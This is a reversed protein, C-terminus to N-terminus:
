GKQGSLAISQIIHRQLILFLILVPLVGLTAGAMVVGYETVYDVNILTAIAVQVTMKTASTLMILPWLFSNWTMLFILVSLAACAEKVVPFIIRRLINFESAGEIRAAQILDDPINMCYQRMFFIGFINVYFPFIVGFLTDDLGIRVMGIYLPIIKIFPPVMYSSLLLIFVINAGKSRYKSLAYGTTTAVFVSTLTTCGAIVISNFFIRFFSVRKIFLAYNQWV